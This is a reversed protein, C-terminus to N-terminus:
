IRFRLQFKIETKKNGSIENNGSSISEQNNYLTHGIKAWFDLKESISYKFNLYGRIGKGSLAPFSFAYLMDDEYAYIRSNYGNTSFWALRMSANMPITTFVYKIDQFVLMGKETKTSKFFSNEIRTKLTIKDSPKYQGHLRIKQIQEPQNIYLKDLTVKKKQEENKYRLYVQFKESLQFDFQTSIELGNAPGATNYTFWNHRYFDTYATITVYKVPLISIGMYLGTENAASNSEAFPSSWLAHYNKEFHRFLTSFVLRDDLHAVIGHSFAKGGSKSIAAEGFLQYKGYSYLYDISGTYNESGSFSFQNYLQESKIYPLDFNQYVFTAGLKLRNLRWSVISGINKNKVAKEDDIESSTRHYGSIQLSSFHTAVSDAFILNADSKKSSYFLNLKINRFNLTTSIGRFFNNEDTSTFPRIGQNTKFISTSNISKGMSFGQWLVLGQASRVIFDGITINEVTQSIKASVHGSYFDFGNRNSGTFFTEGPDKEMTFGVSIDQNAEYKYRTYYRFRNGEYPITEDSKRKYGKPIQITTMGRSLFQHQGYKLSEPLSKPQNDAQGFWIFPEMKKLLEPSFGDITNLEFISLVPGYHSRYDLINQIQIDNLMHLRSLESATATNINLPKEAFRELDEVILVEGSEDEMTEIVSELITEINREPEIVQAEAFFPLLSLIMTIIQLATKKM